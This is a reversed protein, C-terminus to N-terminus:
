GPMSADLDLLASQYAIETATEKSPKFIEAPPILSPLKEIFDKRYGNMTFMGEGRGTQIASEVQAIKNERILSKVATTGRLISLFPIRFGAKPFFDLRQVILWSLTSALQTRVAEQAQPPFSNFMRHLADESNSAHLSALVLHGSEAANLALRITEPERLEGVLIVDPDERLVDLLGQEFSHMHTGIERQEIFSRRSPFRYEIPDELTVIHLTHNRNIDDIIAALTTSKGSGTSGCVLVMGARVQSIQDLSPHLNLSSISPITGPLIRIAMSIGQSTSFVNMRLRISRVSLALDVSWKKKLISLQRPNLLGSLLVDVEEHSWVISREFDIKGHKRFVVERGGTIHVDSYGERVAALLLKIFKEM